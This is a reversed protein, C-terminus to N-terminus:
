EKVGEYLFAGLEPNVMLSFLQGKWAAFGPPPQVDPNNGLWNVWWGWYLQEPDLWPNPHDTLKALAFYISNVVGQNLSWSIGLLETLVPIHAPDGSEGMDQVAANSGTFIQDLAAFM